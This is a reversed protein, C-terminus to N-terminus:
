QSKPTPLEPRPWRCVAAWPVPSAAAVTPVHTKLLVLRPDANTPRLCAIRQRWLIPGSHPQNAHWKGIWIAGLRDYAEKLSKIADSKSGVTVPPCDPIWLHYGSKARWLRIVVIATRTENRQSHM